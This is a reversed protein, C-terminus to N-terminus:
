SILNDCGFLTSLFDRLFFSVRYPSFRLRFAPSLFFVGDVLV